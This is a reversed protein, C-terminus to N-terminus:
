RARQGIIALVVDDMAQQVKWAACKHDNVLISFAYARDDPGYAYGSLAVAGRVLGTKARVRRGTGRLRKRLTGDSGAVPLSSWFEPRIEFDAWVHELAAVLVRPTLLSEETLGSGDLIRLKQTPAGIERLWDLVVAAGGTTTGPAGNASVALSKLLMEAMVNSSFKNLDLVLQSLPRSEYYTLERASEPVTGTRTVGTIDIGHQELLMRFGELTYQTPDEVSRVLSSAGQSRPLYGGITLVNRGNKYTRRVTLSRTRTSTVGTIQIDLFRPFPNIEVEVPQQPTTPRVTVGVSSYNVTLASIPASFARHFNRKPWGPPRNTADFLSDDGVLDGEIRAVGRSRLRMALLFLSEPVLGPDGGGVLYLDGQLVGDKLPAQTQVSTRFVTEPRLRDLVAAATLVKMNSAPTFADEAHQSFVDEQAALDRVLIGARSSILCPDKVARRIGSNIGNHTQKLQEPSPTPVAPEALATQPCISFAVAILLFIRLTVNFNM